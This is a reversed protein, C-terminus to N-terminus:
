EKEVRIFDEGVTEPECVMQGGMEVWAHSALKGQDRSIGLRVRIPARVPVSSDTGKTSGPASDPAAGAAVDPEPLRAKLMAALVLSRPLCAANGPQLRAALRVAEHMDAAWRLRGHSAPEPWELEGPLDGFDVQDTLWEPERFHIRARVPLLRFWAEFLWLWQRFTLKKVSDPWLVINGM